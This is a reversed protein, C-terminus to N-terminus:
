TARGLAAHRPATAWGYRYSLGSRRDDIRPFAHDVDDLQQETVTGTAPDMTWRWLYCPEFVDAGGRWMSAHRGADLVVRGKDDEYANMTHFVFCPDVDFWRVDANTGTRPMVGMRAGYSESWGYPMEGRMAAELDFVVPLDMFIVHSRTAAFDHMMTSGPVEIPESQVLAGAADIRHYVLYPDFVGYGFALLEGTEPCIKPLLLSAGRILGFLVM